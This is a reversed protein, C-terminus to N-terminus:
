HNHLISSNLFMADLYFFYNWYQTFYSFEIKIISSIVFYICTNTCNKESISMYINFYNRLESLNWKFLLLYRNFIFINEPTIFILIEKLM